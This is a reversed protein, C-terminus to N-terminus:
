VLEGFGYTPHTAKRWTMGEYAPKWDPRIRFKTLVQSAWVMLWEMMPHAKDLPKQIMRELYARLVRVKSQWSQIAREVKGNAKSARVPSEIPVTDAKRAIAVGRKFGMIAQEQDSKLVVTTGGYGAEESAGKAVDVACNLEGQQDVPFGCIGYEKHDITVLCHILNEDEDETGQRFAYDLSVTSGSSEDKDGSTRHQRQKGAGLVCDPCWEELKLHLPLHEEVEKKSPTRPRRAPKDAAFEEPADEDDHISGKSVEVDEQSGREAGEVRDGSQLRRM